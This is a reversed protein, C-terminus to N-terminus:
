EQGVVYKSTKTDVLVANDSVRTVKVKMEKIYTKVTKTDVFGYSSLGNFTGSVLNLNALSEPVGSIYVAFEFDKVTGGVGADYNGSADLTIKAKNQININIPNVLSTVVTKSHILVSVVGESINAYSISSPNTGGTIQFFLEKTNGLPNLVEITYTGGSSPTFDSSFVPTKFFSMKGNDSVVPVPTLIELVYERNAYLTRQWTRDLYQLYHTGASDNTPVVGALEPYTIIEADTPKAKFRELLQTALANAKDLEYTKQNVIGSTVFIQLLTGSIIALVAFSVVVEVLTFGKNQNGKM